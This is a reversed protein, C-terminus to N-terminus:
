RARMQKQVKCPQRKRKAGGGAKLKLPVMAKAFERQDDHVTVTSDPKLSYGGGECEFNDCCRAGWTRDSVPAGPPGVTHFNTSGCHPCKVWCENVLIHTVRVDVLGPATDSQQQM